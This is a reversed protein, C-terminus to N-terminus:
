QSTRSDSIIQENNRYQKKFKEVEKRLMEVEITLNAVELDSDHLAKELKQNKKNLGLIIQELKLKELVHVKEISKLSEIEEKLENIQKQLDIIIQNKLGFVIEDAEALIKKESAKNLKSNHLQYSNIIAIIGSITAVIIAIDM